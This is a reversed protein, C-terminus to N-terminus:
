GKIAGVMVGKVFHKQVFPYLIMVPVSAVVIIAYKMLNSLGLLQQVAEAEDIQTLDIQSLVLISRLIIQLPFLSEKSLYIMANFYSNWIGVGTYLSLVAIIPTSLPFVIKFLFHIEGCGDLQSVEFLEDPINTQFYARCIFIQWVNVMGPIIMVARTDLLGLSNILLYTPVLGGGFYMTFAFIFTFVGRGYFERRSLPFAALMTCFINLITGFILYIFSNKFGVWISHYGFVTKYAKLTPKVPFLWVKGSAVAAPDSFSSSVVFILPYLVVILCIILFTNNIALFVIDVKSHKIRM